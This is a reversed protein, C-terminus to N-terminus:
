RLYAGEEGPFLPFYSVVNSRNGFVWVDFSMQPSFLSKVLGCLYESHVTFTRDWLKSFYIQVKSNM